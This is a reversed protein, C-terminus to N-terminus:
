AAFAPSRRLFRLAYRFDQWVGSWASGRYDPAPPAPREAVEIERALRKWDGLHAGALRMADAETAGDAIADAYAQEIQQALEAVIEVEREPITRLTGLREQVFKRWDHM